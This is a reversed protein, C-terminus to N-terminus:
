EDTKSAGRRVSVDVITNLRAGPPESGNTKVFGQVATSNAKRDLLDWAQHEIVYDMFAQSDVLTVTRRRTFHVTGHVTKVNEVGIEQLAASIKEKIKDLAENIPALEKKHKEETESKLNKCTNYLEALHDFRSPNPM